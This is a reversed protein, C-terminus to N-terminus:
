NFNKLNLLGLSLTSAEDFFGKGFDNNMFGDKRIDLKYVHEEGKPIHKPNNLYYVSVDNNTLKNEKSAILYQIKRILYESHTEIIISSRGFPTSGEYFFENAFLEALKSQFSPHLNAEPEEIILNISREQALFILINILKLVGFGEEVVPYIKTGKKINYTFGIVKRKIKVPLIILENGINFKKVWENIFKLLTEVNKDNNIFRKGFEILHYNELETNEFLYHPLIPNNQKFILSHGIISDSFKRKFKGLFSNIVDNVILKYIENIYTVNFHNVYLDENKDDIEETTELENLFLETLPNKISKLLSTIENYSLKIDNSYSLIEKFLKSDIVSYNNLAKLFKSPFHNAERRNNSFIDNRLKKDLKQYLDKNLIKSAVDFFASTFEEKIKMETLPTLKNWSKYHHNYIANILKNEFDIYEKIFKSRSDIGKDILKNWYYSNSNQSESNISFFGKDKLIKNCFYSKFLLKKNETQFIIDTKENFNFEGEKRRKEKISEIDIRYNRYSILYNRLTAIFSFDHKSVWILKESDTPKAILIKKYEHFASSRRLKYKLINENKYHKYMNEKSLHLVPNNNISIIIKTLVADKKDSHDLSYALNVNIEGNIISDEFTFYLEMTENNSNKNLNQKFDGIKNKLYESFSLNEFSNIYVEGIEAYYGTDFCSSLFMILKNLTSKGSNNPGTFITLPSLDFEVKEKFLRFNKVGIKTFKDTNKM